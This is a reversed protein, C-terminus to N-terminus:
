SADVDHAPHGAHLVQEGDSLDQVGVRGLHQGPPTGHFDQSVRWSVRVLRLVPQKRATQDAGAGASKGRTKSCKNERVSVNKVELFSSNM